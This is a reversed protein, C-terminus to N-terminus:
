LDKEYYKKGGRPQTVRPRHAATTFRDIFHIKGNVKIPIGRKIGGPVIQKWIGHKWEVYKRQKISHGVALFPYKRKKGMNLSDDGLLAGLLYERQKQSFQKLGYREWREVKRINYKKLYYSVGFKSLGFHKAIDTITKYEELYMRKLESEGIM